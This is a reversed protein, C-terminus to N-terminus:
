GKTKKRKLWTSSPAKQYNKSTMTLSYFLKESIM